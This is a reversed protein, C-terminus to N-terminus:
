IGENTGRNIKRYRRCITALSLFVAKRTIYLPRFYVINIIFYPPPRSPDPYDEKHKIV